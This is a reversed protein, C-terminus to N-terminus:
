GIAGESRRDKKEKAWVETERKFSATEEAHRELYSM